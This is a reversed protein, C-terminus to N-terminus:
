DFPIEPKVGDGPELPNVIDRAESIPVPTISNFLTDIKANLISLEAAVAKGTVANGSEADVSQDFATWNGDGRLYKGQEGSEPAPVFGYSGDDSETAGVFDGPKNKIFTPLSDDTEAWDAQQQEPIEIDSWVGSGTLFRNEDGAKPAPVTGATGDHNADAGKFEPAHVTFETGDSTDKADVKINDGALVEVARSRYIKPPCKCEPSPGPPVPKPPRPPRINPDPVPPIFSNCGCPARGQHMPTYDSTAVEAPEPKNHILAPDAENKGDLDPQVQETNENDSLVGDGALARNEDGAEPAPVTGGTGDNRADAGTSEPAQVTFETGDGTDEADVKNNDGADVVVARSRYIKPPRNCEPSPEPIVPEPWPLSNNGAAAEVMRSRYIKPPRNCEPSPEPIVPEPWTPRINPDPVQVFPSCGCPGRGHHMPIYGPAGDLPDPYIKSPIYESPGQQPSPPTPLCNCPKKM